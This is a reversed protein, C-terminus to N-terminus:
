RDDVPRADAWGDPSTELHLYTAWQEGMGAGKTQHRWWSMEADNVNCTRGARWIRSGWYDHIAQLHLKESNRILTPIIAHICVDRRPTGAGYALDLAAGHSHPSPKVGLRVAREGYCGLSNMGWTNVAWTKIAVLNPSCKNYDPDDPMESWNFFTKQM